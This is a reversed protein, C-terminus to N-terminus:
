VREHSKRMLIFINQKLRRNYPSYSRINGINQTSDTTLERQRRM